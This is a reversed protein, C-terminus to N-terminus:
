ASMTQSIHIGKARSKTARLSQAHVDPLDRMDINCSNCTAVTYIYTQIYTALICTHTYTYAHKLKCAHMYTCM